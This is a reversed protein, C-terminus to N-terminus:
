GNAQKSKHNSYSTVTVKPDVSIEVIGDEGSIKVQHHAIGDPTIFTSHTKVEASPATAETNNQTNSPAVKELAASSLDVIDNATNGGSPHLSQLQKSGEFSSQATKNLSRPQEYGIQGSDIKNM